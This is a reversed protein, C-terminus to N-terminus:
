GSCQVANSVSGLGSKENFIVFGSCWIVSRYLNVCAVSHILLIVISVLQRRYGHPKFLGTRKRATPMTNVVILRGFKRRLIYCSKSISRKARRGVASRDSQGKRGGGGCMYHIINRLSVALQSVPKDPVKGCELGGYGGGSNVGINLSDIIRTCGM